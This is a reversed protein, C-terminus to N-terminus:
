GMMWKLIETNDDTLKVKTNDTGLREPLVLTRMLPHPNVVKIQGHTLINKTKQKRKQVLSYDIFYTTCIDVDYKLFTDELQVAMLM